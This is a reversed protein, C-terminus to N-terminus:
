CALYGSFNCAGAVLDMQQSGANHTIIQIKATDNADMDALTAIKFTFYDPDQVFIRPDITDYYTRNSTVIKAEVYSNPTDIQSTYLTTSLFYRGTIPATFTNSSVDNNQDFIETGFIIDVNTNEAINTQNSSPRLLFAPQNPM